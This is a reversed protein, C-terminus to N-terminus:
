GPYQSGAARESHYTSTPPLTNTAIKDRQSIILAEAVRAELPKSFLYGQGYECKLRRLQSVHEATEIGEAIVSLGVKHALMVITRVIEANKSNTNMRGVFSRDIKLTDVPFKHLYSLSSFGTGFDDIQLQVGLQKLDSLVQSTSEPDEMFLSETIELKLRHPDLGTAQLIQWIQEVLSPQAIQKVSLNVSISLPAANPSIKDWEQAQSCAERLVWEGLSNIMNTEEVIPIFQSPPLLGYRPHRWRILAEFGVLANTELMVIPQYHLAFEYRELAQRLDNRLQLMKVAQMHMASDFIAHCSKGQTKARYMATDADRLIDEPRDYNMTSMAIGISVSSYIAQGRIDFPTAMHEQIREAVQAVAAPDEIDEVLIAFEDGGFRAITDEARLVCELRRSIAVLLEDGIVHGLSDNVLKFHDFDLFLVGFLYRERRKAHKIAQSLRDMFLRRNPLDTLPDHFANHLLQEEAAKRETIDRANIIVIPNGNEDPVCKSIAEHLRWPGQNHRIRLETIRSEGPYQIASNIVSFAASFDEPHVFEFFNKCALEETSYGLVREVSASVYSVSGHENLILIIDSANEILSRYHEEKRQLIDEARKRETVDNVLTLMALRGDIVMEHSTIEVDIVTGDKKRHRWTGDNTLGPNSQSLKLLLAGPNEMHRIDDVKMSLFEEQSYGYHRVAEENVALFILSEADYLLLPLPNREFMLKYKSISDQSVEEARRRQHLEQQVSKYMQANDLAISALQALSGLRDVEEGTFQRGADTSVVGLVGIIVSDSKLPIAAEAHFFDQAGEQIHTSWRHYDSEVLPQGTQWVKGALNEYPRICSGRLEVLGGVAVSMEMQSGNPEVLYAYGSSVGLLACARKVVTDLLDEIDLRNMLGVTAEELASLHESQRCITRQLLKQETIERITLVIHGDVVNADLLTGTFEWVKGTSADTIECVIPRTTERMLQVQKAVQAWMQHAHIASLSEGIIEKNAVLKRAAENAGSIITNHDLVIVPYALAEFILASNLM